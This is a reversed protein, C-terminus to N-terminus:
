AYYDVLGRASVSTTRASEAASSHLEEDAGLLESSAGGRGKGGDGEQGQWGRSLSQDSVNVDLQNMGQQAFLERLRHMQSDLAERVGAHPSAFTVQSQEQNVSIRVELRGLEAPDLQIEASKLNQSSMVMVRDVVAESWGGQQMPVPQGVVVPARASLPTQQAIAQTLANLKSVFNEPTNNATGEKLAELGKGTLAELKLEPLELADDEVPVEDQVVQSALLSQSVSQAQASPTAAQDAQLKEKAGIQLAMRVAPLQNLADLEPDFSAETMSAPGSSSLNGTTVLLPAPETDPALAATEQAPLEGTIGLLLLPDLVAGDSAPDTPLSKGSDAVEAQGVAAQAQPDQPEEKDVKSERAPKAPADSREAAKAQREKAYVQSFSSAENKNPQAPKEPPKSAAARPKVEPASKLLLDPAVSM